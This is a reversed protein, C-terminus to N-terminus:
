RHSAPVRIKYWPSINGVRDEIRLYITTGRLRYSIAPLFPRWECPHKPDRAIQLANLGSFGDIGPLRLWRRPAGGCYVMRHSAKRALKRKLTSARKLPAPKLVPLEQDLVITAEGVPADPADDYRIYVPRDGSPGALLQWDYEEDPAPAFVQVDRFDPYNSIFVRTVGDPTPVHLTVDLKRTFPGSSHPADTSQAFLKPRGLLDTATIKPTILVSPIPIRGPPAPSVVTPAAIRWSFTEDASAGATDTARIVLTHDGVGLDHLSLTGSCPAFAGGDVSCTTTVSPDVHFTFEPSADASTAAPHVDITLAPPTMAFTRQLSTAASNGNGVADSAADADIDVTITGNASPTVTFTYTSGSGAFGSLSGNAVSVDGAAFGTVSESFTATVTFAGNFPGAPASLVVSPRSLDASRSVQAAATNGNGAADSAEGGAVDITVTGDSLPTITFSYSTGSGSFGSATGNGVSVDFSTFGTVSESFTATFLLPGGIPDTASAVLTVTPATTDLTIAETETPSVNGAADKFEACVTKTGDTGSLTLSATTSLATTATVSEWPAASCDSGLAVRYAVVGTADAASLALTAATSATTTAGGDISVSGTPATTDGGGGSSPAADVTLTFAKSGSAPTSDTATVTFTSSGATSPTGSIVGAASMTLGAPLTGSTVSWTYPGTGGAAALTTSYSAAATGNLLSATSVTPTSPDVAIQNGTPSSGGLAIGGVTGVVTNTVTASMSLSYTFTTTGNTSGSRAPVTFPGSFVLLGASSDYTPNAITVGDRKSSGSDYSWTGASTPTDRMYDLVVPATASNSVVVQYTVHYPPGALSVATKTLSATITPVAIQTATGPYSGTYKVQTGSAINQVPLVTTAGSTTGRVTFNYITTYGGAAATGPYIRLKDHTTAGGISVQVGTLSFADAPWSDDMAPAMSFTGNGGSQDSSPGAGITGTDGIATVDFSGGIAPSSNSVSISTIKNANASIVDEISSFGDTAACLQTSGAQSPKGNWVEVTFTQASASQVSATLYAYVLPKGSQSTARAPISASQNAALGIAGSFGSLKLWVDSTLSGGSLEYGVYGSHNTSAHGFDGYFPRLTGDPSDMSTVTVGASACTPVIASATSSLSGLVVTTAVIALAVARRKLGQLPGARLLSPRLAM